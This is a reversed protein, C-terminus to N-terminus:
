AFGVGRFRLLEPFAVKHKRIIAPKKEVNNSLVRDAYGYELFGKVGLRELLKDVVLCRILLYFVGDQLFRGVPRGSM